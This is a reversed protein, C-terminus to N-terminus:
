VPSRGRGRRRDQHQHQVQNQGPDPKGKRKNKPPRPPDLVVGNKRKVRGTERRLPGRIRGRAARAGRGTAEIERTPGHTVAKTGQHHHLAGATETTGPGQHPGLLFEAKGVPVEPAPDLHLGPDPNQADGPRGRALVPQLWKEHPPGPLRLSQALHPSSTRRKQLSPPCLQHIGSPSRQHPPLHRRQQRKQLQWRNSPFRRNPPCNKWTQQGPLPRRAALM